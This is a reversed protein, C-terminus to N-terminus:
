LDDFESSENNDDEDANIVKSHGVTDSKSSMEDDENASLNDDDDQPTDEITNLHVMGGPRTAVRTHRAHEDLNVIETKPFQPMVWVEQPITRPNIEIKGLEMTVGLQNRPWDLVVRHPLVTGTKEDYRHHSLKAFAIRNGYYDYLSHETVVGRNKLDVVIVRRFQQKHASVIPLVLRAEDNTPATEFQVGLSPVPAVGMVQMLWDTEFPIGDTQRVFDMNEHKCTVVQGNERSWVWIREDNSGLDVETGRPSSVVLRVHTDREIALRGSLPISVGKARIRVDNTKWGEIAGCNRNLHAVVQECTPSNAYRLRPAEAMPDIPKRSIMNRATVCGSLVSGLIVVLVIMGAQRAPLKRHHSAATEQTM